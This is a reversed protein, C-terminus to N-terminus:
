PRETGASLQCVDEEEEEEEEEERRVEHKIVEINSYCILIPTAHLPELIDTGTTEDRFSVYEFSQCCM